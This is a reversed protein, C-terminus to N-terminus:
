ITIPFQVNLALIVLLMLANTIWASVTVSFTDLQCHCGFDRVCRLEQSCRALQMNKDAHTVGLSFDAAFKKYHQVLVTSNSPIPGRNLFVLQLVKCFWLNLM